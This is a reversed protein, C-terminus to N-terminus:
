TFVPLLLDDLLYRHLNTSRFLLQRWTFGAAVATELIRGLWPFCHFKEKTELARLL